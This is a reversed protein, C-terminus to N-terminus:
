NAHPPTRNGLGCLSQLERHRTRYYHDDCNGPGHEHGFVHRHVDRKHFSGGNDNADFLGSSITGAGDAHFAGAGALRHGASDVGVLGEAYDGAIKGTSFATTDQKLFVGSGRTGTGTTDDFEIVKADGNAQLAIALTVGGALTLMVTGLNDSAISYTGSFSQSLSPAFSAANVDAIGNSINGNGDAVFDGAAMFAGGSNWGTFLFAYNGSLKSNNGTSNITISLNATAM